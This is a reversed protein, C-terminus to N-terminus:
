QCVCWQKRKIRCRQIFDFTIRRLMKNNTNGVSNVIARPFIILLYQSIALFQLKQYINKSMNVSSTAM